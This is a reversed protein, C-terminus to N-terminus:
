LFFKLCLSWFLPHHLCDVPAHFSRRSNIEKSFTCSYVSSGTVLEYPLIWRIKSHGTYTHNHPVWPTINMMTPYLCLLGLKFRLLATQMDCLVFVRLFSIFRVTRGGAIPLYNFLSPKKVKIHHSTPSFSFESCLGSLSPKFFVEHWIGNMCLTLYICMCRYSPWEIFSPSNDYPKIFKDMPIHM